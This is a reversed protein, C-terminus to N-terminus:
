LRVTDTATGPLPTVVVVRLLAWLIYRQARSARSFLGERPPKM